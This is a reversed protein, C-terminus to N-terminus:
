DTWRVCLRGLVLLYIFVNFVSSIRKVATMLMTCTTTICVTHVVAKSRKIKGIAVYGKNANNANSADKLM